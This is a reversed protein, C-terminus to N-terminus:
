LIDAPVAFCDDLMSAPVEDLESVTWFKM